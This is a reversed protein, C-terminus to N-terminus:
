VCRTLPLWCCHCHCRCCTGHNKCVLVAVICSSGGSHSLTRCLLPLLLDPCCCHWSLCSILLLLLLPVQLTALFSADREKGGTKVSSNTIVVCDPPLSHQGRGCNQWWKLGECEGGGGGEVCV